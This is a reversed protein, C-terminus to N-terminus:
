SSIKRVNIGIRNAEVVCNGTGRGGPFAILKQPQENELMAKNRKPGASKGHLKWDASYKAWTHKVGNRDAWKVCLMDAGTPCNGHVLLSIAGLKHEDDLTCFVTGTDLYHRGGTVAIVKHTV